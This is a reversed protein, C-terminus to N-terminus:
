GAQETLRDTVRAAGPDEKQNSYSHVQAANATMEEGLEDTQIEEVSIAPDDNM